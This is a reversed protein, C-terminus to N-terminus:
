AAVGQEVQQLLREYVSLAHQEPVNQALQEIVAAPRKVSQPIVKKGQPRAAAIEGRWPTPLAQLYPREEELRERPKVQTTGHIREHAVEELWHRVEINATLM